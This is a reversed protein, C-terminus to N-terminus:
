SLKSFLDLIDKPIEGKEIRRSLEKEAAGRTQHLKKEPHGPVHIKERAQNWPVGNKYAERITTELIDSPVAHGGKPGRKNKQRGSLKATSEFSGKAGSSTPASTQTIESQETFPNALVSEEIWKLFEASPRNNAMELLRENNRSFDYFPQDNDDHGECPWMGVFFRTYKAIRYVMSIVSRPKAFAADEWPYICMDEASQNLDIFYPGNNGNSYISNLVALGKLRRLDITTPPTFNGSSTNMRSEIKYLVYKAITRPHLLPCTVPSGLLTDLNDPLHKYNRLPDASRGFAKRISSCTFCGSSKTVVDEVIRRLERINGPWHYALLLILASAELRCSGLGLQKTMYPVLLPLDQLRSKLAPLLIPRAFRHKLDQRFHAPDNINKNTTAIIRIDIKRPNTSGIRRIEKEQVVRLLKAQDETSLDGIEELILTGGDLDEIIGAKSEDAHDHSNKEYGFLDSAFLSSQVGTINYAKCKAKKRPSNWHLAQALQDKGTGTEGIILIHAKDNKALEKIDAVTIDPDEPLLMLTKKGNEIGNELWRDTM